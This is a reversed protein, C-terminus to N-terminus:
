CEILVQLPRIDLQDVAEKIVDYDRESARILLSPFRHVWSSIRGSCTNISTSITSARWSRLKENPVEKKTGFCDTPLPFSEAPPLQTPAPSPSRTM